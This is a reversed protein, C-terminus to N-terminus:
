QIGQFNKCEIIEITNVKKANLLIDFEAHSIVADCYMTKNIDSGFFHTNIFFVNKHHPNEKQWIDFQDQRDDILYLSSDYDRNYYLARSALTWNTVALAETVPNKILTNAKKMILDWGYIDRHLSQYDPLPLFKLGLEAYAFASLILGLYLAIKIYKKSINLFYYSGIPIFLMYFLASWHPLATKYLSAYTFFLIFVLGFLATLFLTDNKSRLAKYLGYFAVPFLLPNYAGIQAAISNFFGSWDIGTNGVVHESQYGFSIWENQINWFIVPSIILLAVFLAPLIKPSYFLEYRKKIIFYLIIPPIFLVATYKSLGALGLLTGLLIWMGLTDKKELKIVTFIIPLVLLFLLTDPMLMLFLANFLFSAHLALVAIFAEKSNNNIEYILKYVFLSSFFGILIAAVRAGFSNTGLLSTFLYQVWGVLPPHDFYSLDLHLAYLVYHAEDVGLGVFPALFLRILAVFGIFYFFGRHEKAALNM